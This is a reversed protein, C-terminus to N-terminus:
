NETIQSQIKEIKNVPEDNINYPNLIEQQKKCPILYPTYKYCTDEIQFVKDQVEDIHPAYYVTCGSKCVRHFLLALALGFIASTLMQGFTTYLLRDVSNRVFETM